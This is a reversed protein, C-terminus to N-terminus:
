NFPIDEDFDDYKNPEAPAPQEVPAPAPTSAQVQSPEAQASAVGNGLEAKLKLAIEALRKATPEVNALEIKGHAVLTVAQNLAAGVTVGIEYNDDKKKFGGGKSYGGSKQQKPLVTVAGTINKYRGNETFEFEVDDGKKIDLTQGRPASYWNDDGGKFATKDQKVAKVYTKM